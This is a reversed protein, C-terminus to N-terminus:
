EGTISGMNKLFNLLLECQMYIPEEDFLSFEAWQADWRDRVMKKRLVFQDDRLAYLKESYATRKHSLMFHCIDCVSKNGPTHECNLSWNQSEVINSTLDSSYYKYFLYHHGKKYGWLNHDFYQKKLYQGFRQLQTQEASTMNTVLNDFHDFFSEFLDNEPTSQFWPVYALAKCAMWFDYFKTGQQYYNKDILALRQKISKMFHFSCTVVLTGSELVLFGNEYVSPEPWRQIIYTVLSSEHDCRISLPVFSTTRDGGGSLYLQNIKDCMSKYTNSSKSKLMVTIVTYCFIRNNGDDFHVAWNYLQAFGEVTSVWRFTGDLVLHNKNLLGMESVLGFIIM